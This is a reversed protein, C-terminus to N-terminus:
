GEGGEAILGQNEAEQQELPATQSWSSGADWGRGLGPLAPKQLPRFCDLGKRQPELSTHFRTKLLASGLCSARRLCCEWGPGGRSAEPGPVVEGRHGPLDQTARGVKM